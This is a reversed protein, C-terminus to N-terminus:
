IPQNTKLCLPNGHDNGGRYECAGAALKFCEADVLECIQRAEKIYQPWARADDHKVGNCIGVLVRAVSETM